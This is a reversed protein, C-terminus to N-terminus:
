QSPEDKSSPRAGPEDTSLDLRHVGPTTGLCFALRQYAQLWVLEGLYAKKKEETQAKEKLWAPNQQLLAEMAGTEQSPVQLRIKIEMTASPIWGPESDWPMRSVYASNSEDVFLMLPKVTGGVWIRYMPLRRGAVRLLPEPVSQDPRTSGSSEVLAQLDSPLWEIDTDVLLIGKTTQLPSDQALISAVDTPIGNESLQKVTFGVQMQRLGNGYEEALRSRSDSQSTIFLEKDIV